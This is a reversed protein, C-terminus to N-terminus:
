VLSIRPGKPGFLRRGLEAVWRGDPTDDLMLHGSVAGDLLRKIPECPTELRRLAELVVADQISAGTRASWERAAIEFGPDPTSPQEIGNDPGLSNIEHVVLDKRDKYNLAALEGPHIPRGVWIQQTGMGVPFETRQALPEVPLGGTFRVPVVPVSAALAMDLFAGSMKVVANRCSLGRTGEVHVMISRNHRCLDDQLGSITEPLGDTAERDFFTIVGPDTVGPWAFAHAILGGLWTHRHEAKALTRTLMGGLGSILMSFLLSEIGTQHNALYIPGRGRAARFADPDSFRVGSVFKTALGFFLDEVPWPGIKFHDSWFERVSQLDLVPPCRPSIEIADPKQEIVVDHRKLPEADCVASDGSLVRVTSPHVRSVHAVHDKLAIERVDDDSKIAYATSLTGALWNSENVRSLSLTTRGDEHDSLLAKDVFVRDRLFARRDAPPLGGIRGKPLLVEVLVFEAFVRGDVSAQIAFRPFRRDGDFGDFRTVTRVKGETPMRGLLRFEPMHHPYAVMDDPIERSWASLRDHAIGHTLADLLVEHFHGHAPGGAAPDLLAVSGSSGARLSYLLQFAPGHFLVGQEYPNQLPQLGDPDPWPAAAPRPSADLVVRATAVIEFRSMAPNPAERWALLTTRFAGDADPEVLTKVQVPGAIPLWRHVQMNEVSFTGPTGSLATGAMTDLMSMFPLVPVTWTPRHDQLWTQKESDLIEVGESAGRNALPPDPADPVVRMALGIAEYIRIGDVWLSADAVAFRGREDTGTQTIDVITTVLRNKPVVQGRYKWSFPRGSAIPEFHSRDQDGVLGLRIMAYQLLQILAELGLSGPQVPDQFFHSKFFWAAADVGMEGCCRGLGAKGTGPRFERIRHLMRLYPAALRPGSDPWFSDHRTLDIEVASSAIEEPNEGEPVPLGKQAALAAPPFFGFVTKLEYVLKSDARVTVDFTQIIMGASSSIGTLVARTCLIKCGPEITSHVTGSGDLNRFALEEDVTLASGVYSALWGCPQLAAELLVCYPMSPHGNERFYWADVPIDYECEVASGTKMGGQPGETGTIRSMFHYPPSPLRPVRRPGDFVQYMPGFAESPKGIACALLSRPDFSFPAAPPRDEDMPWGPVLRLGMRHCHFAKLGDVTCLLDAWLTPCPGDEIEDVFVEYVLEHSTPSVEGRCRLPYVTELVPEFRWGDRRLTWGLSAMFVAMAQLCGEFMLTGPMCPDNLFHGEFFWDDPSIADVARLYGRGWPGGEPSFDTVEDLFLMKGSSIRPSRTHTHALEFGPGFCEFIRGQSFAELMPRDFLRRSTLMEPPDLRPKETPRASNPDWIVGRSQELEEDSFFGAQGNRVSLRPRGGSHCDYHFFFLRINDQTAHGDVHIEYRLTDGPAALGDHYTLDCGLLRYVREGKNFMDVGLWSILFLDAQGSEIMIGAPMRGDHMYWAGGHVDTETWITGKGMSGAEADIGLVRDALLMPPKPMRVQRVFGDQPVFAPGFIQSIKGGAHIQLETRDFSPGPWTEAVPIATGLHDEPGPLYAPGQLEDAYQSLAATTKTQLFGIHASAMSRVFNRHAMAALRHQELWPDDQPEGLGVACAREVTKAEVAEEDGAPGLPPPCPMPHVRPEPRRAAPPAQDFVLSPPPPLVAAPRRVFHRRQTSPASALSPKELVRGENARRVHVCMSAGGIATAEIRLSRGPEFPTGDALRGKQAMLVAAGAHILSGAAHAAGLRTELDRTDIGPADSGPEDVLALIPEGGHVADDLRRLVFVIAGDGPPRVLGMEELAKQHASESSFDVAGVVAMDLEGSRLADIGAQLARLGSLEEASITLGPGQIDFQLSLRNAVMNPMTGLVGAAELVPAFADAAQDNWQRDDVGWAQAWDPLRWRAGNRAVLPDCGMGIFVGARHAPTRVGDRLAERAAALLWLQQPLAEDLDLPPFRIGQLDLDLSSATRSCTSDPNFLLKEFDSLCAGNGVVAGMCTVAVSVHADPAPAGPPVAVQSARSEPSFEEVILHANNGGFGFASVAARRPLASEWPEPSSVLRFGAAELEAMVPGDHRNPPVVRARMAEIVKILGAVGAATISHGLNSKLSGVALGTRGQFVRRMSRIETADGVATGTAHCEVFSATSPDLGATEWAARIARLQGDESPALLGGTRGDNSLGVGRIVALINRGERVADDLRELVVVGAGEAPVLGDAEPHFPRSRGTPSLAKLATFGTHIFLDDAANVAGALMVAASRRHLRDCALKIAYLSSACAADLCFADGGLGLAAAVLHAPLGSMFRNFPHVAPIAAADSLADGIWARECWAAMSSSPFSLNGFIAGCSKTDVPGAQRIAERSAHLLWQFLPDLSALLSPELGFGTPDFSAEFGRVIGGRTTSVPHRHGSATEHLRDAGLRWRRPSADSLLDRGALVADWLDAPTLAGPLICAAGTIAIPEFSV